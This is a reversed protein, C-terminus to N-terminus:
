DALRFATTSVIASSYGETEIVLEGISTIHTITWVINEDDLPVVRQVKDGVKFGRVIKDIKIQEKFNLWENLEDKDEIRPLQHRIRLALIEKAQKDTLDYIDLMSKLHENIAVKLKSIM